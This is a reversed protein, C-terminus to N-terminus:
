SGAGGQSGVTERVALHTPEVVLTRQGVFAEAVADGTTETTYDAWVVIDLINNGNAPSDFGTGTNLAIWNFANATRTRIYDDEKDVDGDGETDEVSRGYARNCFVVRGDQNADDDAIPVTRGDITVWIQVEGFADSSDAADGGTTLETIISCEATLQVILDSPSSVKMQESLIPTAEDVHDITSGAAAFKNAPGGAAGASGVLNSTLLAVLLVPTAFVSARRVLRAFSM